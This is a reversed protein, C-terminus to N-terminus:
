SSSRTNGYDKCGGKRARTRASFSEEEGESEIEESIFM